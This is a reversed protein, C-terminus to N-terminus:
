RRVNPMHQATRSSINPFTESLLSGPCKNGNAERQWRSGGAAQEEPGTVIKIAMAKRRGPRGGGRWALRPLDRLPPGKGLPHRLRESPVVSYCRISAPPWPNGSVHLNNSCV